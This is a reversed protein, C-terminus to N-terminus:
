VLGALGSLAYCLYGLGFRCRLGPYVSLRRCMLGSPAYCNAARVVTWGISLWFGPEHEYIYRFMGLHLPMRDSMHLPESRRRLFFIEVKRV